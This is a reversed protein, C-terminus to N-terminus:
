RGPEDVLALYIAKPIRTDNGHLLRTCPGDATFLNTPQDQGDLYYRRSLYAGSSGVSITQQAFPSRLPNGMASAYATARSGCEGDMGSTACRSSNLFRTM